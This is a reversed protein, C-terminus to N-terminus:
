PLQQMVANQANIFGYGDLFTYGAGIRNSLTGSFTSGDALTGSYAIGGTATTGAPIRTGAGALDGSNAARSDGTSPNFASRFADRSVGFRLTKGGTFSGAAMSLNMNFFMNAVSPSPAQNSFSASVDAASLGVSGAGFVFPQGGVPRVDFVLGPTSPNLVSGGGPNGNSADFSISTISSPGVYSITFANPDTRASASNDGDLTITV